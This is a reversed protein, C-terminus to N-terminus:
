AAERYVRRSEDDFAPELREVPPVDLPLRGVAGYWDDHGFAQGHYAGTSGWRFVYSPVADAALTADGVIGSAAALRSMFQQDFDLTTVPPWGGMRRFLGATCAISAHFRGAAGEVEMKGTYTSWVRSPKSFEVGTALVAAHAALHHPLYIDDDEWVVFAETQPSALAALANFKAPLNNFRRAISVVEWGDGRQPSIQGADDLVILERRDAPYDQALFCAVANALLKPRKYTPCLCTLHPLM